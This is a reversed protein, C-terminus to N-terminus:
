RIFQVNIRSLWTKCREKQEYYLFDYKPHLLYALIYVRFLIVYFKKHVELSLRINIYYSAYICVSSMCLSDKMNM